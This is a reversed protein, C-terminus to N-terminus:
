AEENQQRIILGGGVVLDDQYFVAAQGPAVGEAPELCTIVAREGDINVRAPILAGRHRIRVQAEFSPAPPKGLTFDLDRCIIIQSMVSEKHGVVLANKEADTAVVYWPEGEPEGKVGGIGLGSRQGITYLPLGQHEGIVRGDVTVIPGKKFYKGDLYRRLFHKPSAESFFCLGQSQPKEVVRLLGFKKALEYIEPKTYGGVPFLIHKLKEQQLHYLFYSQDKNTDIATKLLHRDGEHSVRAYHGSAVFEAGLQQARELLQGFKINRNCEVCPNPTQGQAYSNLFYDVVHEKFEREGNMVYFPIELQAAIARADELGGLTCCKNQPLVGASEDVASDSWFRIHIGICEYGQEKLLAATVSSDVGGSLAVVVKPKSMSKFTLGSTSSMVMGFSM